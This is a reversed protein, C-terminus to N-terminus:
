TQLLDALRLRAITEIERLAASLEADRTNGLRVQMATYIASRDTLRACIIFPFGFHERYATSAARLEALAEESLRDLGAAAQERASDATLQSQQAVRGALDPHARILALQRERPAASLTACLEAHLHSPDSFPRRPWTEDAVWPSYEFLHGLTAVFAARDCSNLQEITVREGESQPASAGLLDALEAPTDVDVLVGDDPMEVEIKRDPYGAILARAGADGTLASLEPFYAACWLVPNGRRGHSRPVCIARGELPDFAGILRDLHHAGVRPMDGLLVVAADAGAPLAALGARLSSSLGDAFGRNEVITVERGALAARVRGADNGVVVIVPGAQSALAADVARAVMPTGDVEAFLKNTTAM